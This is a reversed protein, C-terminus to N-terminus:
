PLLPVIVALNRPRRVGITAFSGVGMLMEGDGTIVLVRRPPPALALGLGIM